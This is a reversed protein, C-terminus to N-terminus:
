IPRTISTKAYYEKAKEMISKVCDTKADVYENPSFRYKEAADLKTKEYQQFSERDVALFDRFMLEDAVHPNGKEYIHVHTMHNVADAGYRVFYRRQPIGNEGRPVYGNANMLEDYSYIQEINNVLVMIDIIPKASM